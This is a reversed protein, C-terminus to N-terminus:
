LETGVFHSRALGHVHNLPGDLRPLNHLHRPSSVHGPVLSVVRSVPVLDHRLDVRTGAPTTLAAPFTPQVSRPRSRPATNLSIALFRLPRSTFDHQRRRMQTFTLWKAAIKRMQFVHALAAVQSTVYFKVLAVAPLSSLALAPLLPQERSSRPPLFSRSAAPSPKMSPVYKM